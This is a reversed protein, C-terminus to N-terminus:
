EAYQVEEATNIKIVEKKDPMIVQIIARNDQKEELQENNDVREYKPNKMGLNYLMFMATAPNLKNTLSLSQIVSSIDGVM